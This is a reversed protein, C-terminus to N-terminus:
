PEAIFYGVVDVIVHTTGGGTMAPRLKIKGDGSLALLANNSRTMGSRFNITSTVPPQAMSGPYAILHGQSTPQTITVNIAV